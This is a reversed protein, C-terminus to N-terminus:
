RQLRQANSRLARPGCQCHIGPITASLVTYSDAIVLEDDGGIAIWPSGWIGGGLRPDSGTQLRAQGPKGLVTTVHGDNRIRRITYNDYAYLTGDADITISRLLNFRATSADGDAHGNQTEHGAFVTIVNAPTTKSIHTRHATYINGQADVAVAQVHRLLKSVAQADGGGAPIRYVLDDGLGNPSVTSIEEKKAVVIHGSAGVALLYCPIQSLVRKAGAGDTAYLTYLTGSGAPTSVTRSECTLVETGTFGVGSFATGSGAVAVPRIALRTRTGDRGVQYMAEGEFTHITGAKDVGLGANITQPSAYNVPQGAILTEAVVPEGLVIAGTRGSYFRGDPGQAEFLRRSEASDSPVGLVTTVEGSLSVKRLRDSEGVVLVGGSMSLRDTSTFRANAGIGDQSGTEGLKGAFASVTGTPDIKYIVGASGVYVNGAADATANGFRQDSGNSRLLTTLRGDPSVKRLRTGNGDTIYVNGAADSGLKGGGELNLRGSSGDGDDDGKNFPQGAITSVEGRVLDVKRIVHSGSDTAILHGASDKIIQRPDVFRAELLTGDHHGLQDDPTGTLLKLSVGSMVTLLAPRTTATGASNTLVARYQRGDHDASVASLAYTEGNAGAINAWNSCGAGICHQWQVSPTPSGTFGVSFSVPGALNVTADQPQSSVAPAVAKARVQLTATASTASGRANTAVARLQLGDDALAPTALTYSAQAAGDIDSWTSGNNRSQQWRLTPTPQGVAVVSFTATQGAEVSLDVPSRTFGAAAPALEVSLVVPTSTVSGLTNSVVVRVQTGNDALILGPLNLTALTADAIDNWNTGDASRQWRYALATGTATVSFSASEGVFCNAGVPAATIQAPKVQAVVSLAAASSTVTNSAGAVQVRFHAGHDTLAVAPLALSRERAGAVDAWSGGSQRQWQYGLANDATVTFTASGGEQVSQDSPQSTIAVAVPVVAGGGDNSSGGGGGCAALVLACTAGLLM